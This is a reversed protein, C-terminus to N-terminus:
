VRVTVTPEHVDVAVVTTTILLGTVGENAAIGAMQIPPVIVKGVVEVL